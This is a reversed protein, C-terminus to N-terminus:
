AARIRDIHARMADPNDRLHLYEDLLGALHGPRTGEPQHFLHWATGPIRRTPGALTACAVEFAVDEPGWARFRQDFGGALEWTEHSVAICSSVTDQLTWAIFPEWSGDHGALVQQTGAETLYAFRDFAAVLGPAHQALAVATEVQARDILIDADAILYVHAPHERVGLNISAARSFPDHGDDVPHLHYGAWEHQVRAWARARRPDTDRWPVIVSIANM